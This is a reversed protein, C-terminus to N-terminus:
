TRGRLVASDKASASKKISFEVYPASRARENEKKPEEEPRVMQFIEFEMGTLMKETSLRELYYPVLEPRNAQGQLNLDQGAGHILVETLRLGPIHQRALAVFYGSYGQTSPFLDRGAVDRVRNMLEVQAELKTLETTLASDVTRSPLKRNLDDLRRISAQFESEVQKAQTRLYNVKWAAYGYMLVIGAFVLGAAQLMTKASFKKEQRRFIPHYLNVQQNIV